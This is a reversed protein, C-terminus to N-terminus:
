WERLGYILACFVCGSLSVIHINEGTETETCNQTLSPFDGICHNESCGLTEGAADGFRFESTSQKVRIDRSNSIHRQNNSTINDPSCLFISDITLRIQPRHAIIVQITEDFTFDVIWLIQLM